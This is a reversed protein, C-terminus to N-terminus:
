ANEKLITFTETHMIGNIIRIKELVENIEEFSKTTIFCVVDYRGAVEFIKKTPLKELESVIQKTPIHPNTEMGVIATFHNSLEITFKTIIKEEILKAVRKRITGESVSLEKAIKLFPTRADKELEDIIRQDISDLKAM